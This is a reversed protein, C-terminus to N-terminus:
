FGPIRLFRLSKLDSTRRSRGCISADQPGHNNEVGHHGCTGAGRLHLNFPMRGMGTSRPLAGSLTALSYILDGPVPSHEAVFGPWFDSCVVKIMPGPSAYSL